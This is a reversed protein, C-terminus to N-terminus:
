RANENIQRAFEMGPRVLSGPAYSGFWPVWATRLTGVTTGKFDATGPPAFYWQATVGAVTYMRVEFALMITWLAFLGTFFFCSTL